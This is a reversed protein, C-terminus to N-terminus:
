DGTVCLCEGFGTQDVVSVHCMNGQQKIWGWVVNIPHSPGDPEQGELQWRQPRTKLSFGRDNVRLPFCPPIWEHLSYNTQPSSNFKVTFLSFFGGLLLFVARKVVTNVLLKQRVLSFSVKIQSWLFAIVLCILAVGSESPSVHIRYVATLHIIVCSCM